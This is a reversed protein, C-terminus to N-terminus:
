NTNKGICLHGRCPDLYVIEWGITKIHVDNQQQLYSALSVTTVIVDDAGGRARIFSFSHCGLVM